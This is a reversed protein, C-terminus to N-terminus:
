HWVKSKGGDNKGNGKRAHRVLSKADTSSSISQIGTSGKRSLRWISADFNRSGNDDPDPSVPETLDQFPVTALAVVFEDPDPTLREMANEQNRQHASGNQPKRAYLGADKSQRRESKKGERTSSHHSGYLSGSKIANPTLYSSSSASSRRDDNKRAFDREETTSSNLAWKLLIKMMSDPRCQKVILDDLKRLLDLVAVEFFHTKDVEIYHREEQNLCRDYAALVLLEELDPATWNTHLPDFLERLGAALLDQLLLILIHETNM